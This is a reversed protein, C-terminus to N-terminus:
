TQLKAYVDFIMALFRGRVECSESEAQRYNQHSEVGEVMGSDDISHEILHAKLKLWNELILSTDM